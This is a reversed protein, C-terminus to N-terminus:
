VFLFTCRDIFGLRSLDSRCNLLTTGLFRWCERYGCTLFIVFRSRDTVFLLLVNLFHSTFKEPVASPNIACDEGGETCNRGFLRLRSDVCYISALLEHVIECCLFRCNECVAFTVHHECDVAIGAVQIFFFSSASGPAM